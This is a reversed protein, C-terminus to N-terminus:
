PKLAETGAAVQVVVVGILLRMRYPQMFVFLRRWVHFAGGVKGRLGKRPEAM